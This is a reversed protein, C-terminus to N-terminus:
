FNIVVFSPKSQSSLVYAKKVESWAVRIVPNRLTNNTSVERRKVSSIQTTPDAMLREASVVLEKLHEMDQTMLWVNDVGSGPSILWATFICLHISTFWWFVCLIDHVNLYTHWKAFTSSFFPMRHCICVHLHLSSVGCVYISVWISQGSLEKIVASCIHTRNRNWLIASTSRDSIVNWIWIKFAKCCLMVLIVFHQMAICCCWIQVSHNLPPMKNRSWFSLRFACEISSIIQWSSTCTRDHSCTKLMCSTGLVVNIWINLWLRHLNSNSDLECARESRAIM